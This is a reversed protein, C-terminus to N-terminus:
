HKIRPKFNKIRDRIEGVTLVTPHTALEHRSQTVCIVEYDDPLSEWVEKSCSVSMKGNWNAVCFYGDPITDPFWRHGQLNTTCGDGKFRELIYALKNTKAYILQRNCARM